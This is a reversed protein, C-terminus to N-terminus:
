ALSALALRPLPSFAIAVADNLTATMETGVLLATLRALISFFVVAVVGVWISYLGERRGYREILFYTALFVSAYFINGTNTAHGFFLVIKGGVSSILILFVTIVMYLRERGLKWAAIVFAASVLASVFLLLENM